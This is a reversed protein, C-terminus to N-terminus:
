RWVDDTGFCPFEAETQYNTVFGDEDRTVKLKGYRIASFSDAVTSLGTIGFSMKRESVTDLFAMSASEYAYKDQMYHVINQAEVYNHLFKNLVLVFNKLVQQFDLVTGTLPTVGEIM